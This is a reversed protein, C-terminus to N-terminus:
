GVHFEYPNVRSRFLPQITLSCLNVEQSMFYDQFLLHLLIEHNQKRLVKNLGQDSLRIDLRISATIKDTASLLNRSVLSLGPFLDRFTGGVM